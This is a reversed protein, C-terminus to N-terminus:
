LNVTTSIPVVTGNGMWAHKEIQVALDAAVALCRGAFDVDGRQNALVAFQSVVEHLFFGLWVSEGRGLHGVRNMGDNWDGSGMLPLSHVGLRLGNLIARTCHEYLTGSQDSQGPM